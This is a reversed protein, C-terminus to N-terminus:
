YNVKKLAEDLLIFAMDEPCDHLMQYYKRVEILEDSTGGYYAVVDKCRKILEDLDKQKSQM